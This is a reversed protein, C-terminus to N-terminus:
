KSNNQGVYRNISIHTKSTYSQIRKTVSPQEATVMRHPSFSNICKTGSSLAIRNDVVAM